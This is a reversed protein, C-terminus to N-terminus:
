DDGRLQHVTRGPTSRDLTGTKTTSIAQLRERESTFFIRFQRAALTGWPYPCADNVSTYQRAAQVAQRQVYRAGSTNTPTIDLTMALSAKSRQRRRSTSASWPRLRAACRTPKIVPAALLHAHVEPACHAFSRLEIRSVEVNLATGPLVKDQHASWWAKAEDGFWFLRWPIVHHHSAQRDYALIQLGYVGNSATNALPPQKARFLTVFAAMIHTSM